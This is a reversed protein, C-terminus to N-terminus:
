VATHVVERAYYVRKLGVRKSWVLSSRSSVSRIELLLVLERRHLWQKYDIPWFDPLPGM